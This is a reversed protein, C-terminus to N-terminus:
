YSSQATACATQSDAQGEGGECSGAHPLDAPTMAQAEALMRSAEQIELLPVHPSNSSCLPNASSGLKTNFAMWCNMFLM